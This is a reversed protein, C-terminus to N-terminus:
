APKLARTAIYSPMYRAVPHNARYAEYVGMLVFGAELQGGIQDELTHSFELMDTSAPPQREDDTLHNLDSYPLAYRVKLVGEEFLKYDFIFEM